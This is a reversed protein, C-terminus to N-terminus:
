NKHIHAVIADYQAYMKQTENELIFYHRIYPILLGLVLVILVLSPISFSIISILVGLVLLIAFTLTVLLHILREHQFFGIQVLHEARLEEWDACAGPDDKELLEDIYRRYTLIREEMKYGEYQQLDERATM